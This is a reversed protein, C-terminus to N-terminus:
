VGGKIVIGIGCLVAGLILLINRTTKSWIITDFDGKIASFPNILLFGPALGIGFFVVSVGLSTLLEGVGYASLAFKYIGLGFFVFSLIFFSSAIVAELRNPHDAHMSMLQNVETVKLIIQHGGQFIIIRRILGFVVPFVGCGQAILESWLLVQLASFEHGAGAM